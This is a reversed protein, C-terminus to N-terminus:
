RMQYKEFSRNYECIATADAEELLQIPLEQKDENNEIIDIYRESTLAM